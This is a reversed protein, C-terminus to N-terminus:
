GLLCCPCVGSRHTGRRVACAKSPGRHGCVIRPLLVQLMAVVVSRGDGPRDCCQRDRGGADVGRLGHGVRGLHESGRSRDVRQGLQRLQAHPLALLSPFSGANDTQNKREGEKERDRETGREWM